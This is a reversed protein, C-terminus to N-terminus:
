LCFLILYFYNKLLLESPTSSPYPSFYNVKKQESKKQM